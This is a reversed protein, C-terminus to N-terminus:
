QPAASVTMHTPSALIESKTAKHRSCPLGALYDLNSTAAPRRVRSLMLIWESDAAQPGSSSYTSSFAWATVFSIRAQVIGTTM